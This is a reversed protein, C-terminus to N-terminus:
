KMEKIARRATDYHLLTDQPLPEGVLSQYALVMGLLINFERSLTAKSYPRQGRVKPDNKRLLACYTIRKARRDIMGLLNDLDLVGPAVPGSM